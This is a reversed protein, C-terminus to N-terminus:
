VDFFCAFVKRGADWDKKQIRMDTNIIRVHIPLCGTSSGKIIKPCIDEMRYKINNMNNIGMIACISFFRIKQLSLKFSLAFCQFHELLPKVGKRLM